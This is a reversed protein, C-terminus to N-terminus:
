STKRPARRGKASFWVRVSSAIGRVFQDKPEQPAAFWWSTPASKSHVCRTDAGTQELHEPAPYLGTIGSRRPSPGEADVPPSPGPNQPKGNGVYRVGPAPWPHEIILTGRTDFVM